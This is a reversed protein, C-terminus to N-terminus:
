QAKQTRKKKKEENKEKQQTKEEEKEEEKQEERKEEEKQEEQKQEEQKQEKKEKAQSEEQQVARERPPLATNGGRGLFFIPVALLLALVTSVLAVPVPHETAVMKIQTMIQDFLSQESKDVIKPLAAKEREIKIHWTKDAYDRASQENHTILFNDFLIGGQMTWIEITLAGIKPFNSPQKDEFYNPNPIQRPKWEGKYAPNKIKPAVWKGKYEPNPIQRPKWEGCGHEMCKPNPILPAEWKGDEEEDWEAPMRADPDRITEPEDDLWEAPKSDTPDDIMRPADEDWDDPKSADPDTIFEEDVWDSPKKDTPDDIEKPPIVPPDFDELLSGKRASENDILVEFSNDKRVILTYLHTLQDNKIRPADKLHKEEWVKSKPNYHRFIFHVKNTTSGCYDPGFMIIYPSENNVHELDVSKGEQHLLKIYSGGCELNKEFKVEYQVILDQDTNEIPPDIITSIAYHRADEAALLGKDGAIGKLSGPATSWKWAGNYKTDLSPVWRRSTFPDTNFNDFLIANSVSPAQYHDDDLTQSAISDTSFQADDLETNHKNDTTFVISVLVFLLVLFLLKM